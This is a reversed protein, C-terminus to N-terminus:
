KRWKSWWTIVKINNDKVWKHYTYGRIILRIVYEVTFGILIMCIVFFVQAASVALQPVQDRYEAMEPTVMSVYMVMYILAVILFLNMVILMLSTLNFHIEEKFKYDYELKQGKTLNKYTEWNM